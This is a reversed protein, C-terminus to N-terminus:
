LDTANGAFIGLQEINSVPTLAAPLPLTKKSQGMNRYRIVAEGDENPTFSSVAGWTENTWTKVQYITSTDLNHVRIDVTQNDAGGQTNQKASVTAAEIAGEATTFPTQTFLHVM